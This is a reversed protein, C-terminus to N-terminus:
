VVQSPRFCHVYNHHSYHTSKAIPRREIRPGLQHRSRVPVIGDDAVTEAESGTDDDGHIVRDNTVFASDISLHHYRGRRRTQVHVSKQRSASVVTEPDDPDIITSISPRSVSRQSQIRKHNTLMRIADPVVFSTNRSAVVDLDSDATVDSNNSAEGEEGDLERQVLTRDRDRIDRAVSTRVARARGNEDITLTVTTDNTASRERGSEMSPHAHSPQRTPRSYFMETPRSPQPPPDYFSQDREAVPSSRTRRWPEDTFPRKLNPRENVTDGYLSPLAGNNSRPKLTRRIRRTDAADERVASASPDRVSHSPRLQDHRIPTNERSSGQSISPDWSSPHLQNPNIVERARISVHQSSPVRATMAAVDGLLPPLRDDDLDSGGSPSSERHWVGVEQDSSTTPRRRGVAVEQGRRHHQRRGVMIGGNHEEDCRAALSRSPGPQQDGRAVWPDSRASHASEPGPGSIRHHLARFRDSSLRSSWRVAQNSEIQHPHKSRTSRTERPLTLRGDVPSSGPQTKRLRRTRSVELTPSITGSSITPPPTRFSEGSCDHDGLEEERTPRRPTRRPKIRVPSSLAPVNEDAPESSVSPMPPTRQVGDQTVEAPTGVPRHADRWEALAAPTGPHVPRLDYPDSLQQLPSTSFPFFSEFTALNARPTEYTTADFASARGSKPTATPTPPQPRPTSVSDPWLPSRDAKSPSSM